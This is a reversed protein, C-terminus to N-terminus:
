IHNCRGRGWGRRRGKGFGGGMPPTMIILNKSGCIPCTEPMEDSRIRFMHGCDACKVILFRFNVNGGRIVLRKGKVLMEALKSHASDLLRTFTPRSIGMEQAAEEHSLGELDALRIAEYEDINMVIESQGAGFGVPKFETYLPPEHINRSKEPRPMHIKIENRVFLIIFM